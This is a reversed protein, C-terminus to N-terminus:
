GIKFYECIQEDTVYMREQEMPIGRVTRVRGCRKLIHKVIDQQMQLHCGDALIQDIGPMRLPDRKEYSRNIIEVKTDLADTPVVKRRGFKGFENHRKQFKMSNDRSLEEDITDPVPGEDGGANSPPANMTDESSHRGFADAFDGMVEDVGPLVIGEEITSEVPEPADEGGWRLRDKMLSQHRQRWNRQRSITLHM